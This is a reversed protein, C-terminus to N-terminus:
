LEDNEIMEKRFDEKWGDYIVGGNNANCEIWRIAKEILDREAINNMDSVKDNEKNYDKLPCKDKPTVVRTYTYKPHHCLIRTDGLKLEGYGCIFCKM